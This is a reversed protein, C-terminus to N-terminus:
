KWSRPIRYDQIELVELPKTKELDDQKKLWDYTKSLGTDLSTSIRNKFYHKFKLKNLEIHKVETPRIEEFNIISNSNTLTIIKKALELVTYKKDHGLNFVGQFDINKKISETLITTIDDVYSFTRTAEGNGYITIPENKMAQKMFLSVVNKYPTKYNMGIGYVNELRFTQYRFKYMKALIQIINESSLKNISYVDQPSTMNIEPLTIDGQDGYVSMSSSFVFSKLKGTKIAATLLNVTSVFGNQTASCPSFNSRSIMAEDALHFIIEPKIKNIINFVDTKNHLDICYTPCEQNTELGGSYNDIGVVFNNKNENLKKTLSHGILGLNGTILIKM